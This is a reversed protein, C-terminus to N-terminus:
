IKEIYSIIPVLKKSSRMDKRESHEKLEELTDIDTFLRIKLNCFDIRNNGYLFIVYSQGLEIKTRGAFAEVIIETSTNLPGKITKFIEFSIKVEGNYGNSPLFEGKLVRGFLIDSAKEIHKEVPDRMPDYDPCEFAMAPAVIFFLLVFLARMNKEHLKVSLV